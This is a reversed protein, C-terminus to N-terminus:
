VLDKRAVVVTSFDEDVVSTTAADIDSGSDDPSALVGGVVAVAALVVVGLGILKPNM